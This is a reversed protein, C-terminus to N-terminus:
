NKTRQEYSSKLKECLEEVSNYIEAEHFLEKYDRVAYKIIIGEKSVEININTVIRKVITNYWMCYVGQGVDFKTEIKM